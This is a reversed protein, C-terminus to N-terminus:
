AGGVRRVYDHVAPPMLRAQAMDHLPIWRFRLHDERSRPPHELLVPYLTVAYLHMQEHVRTAGKDFINELVTIPVVRSVERGTEERLERILADAPHEGAEVHGGPLHCFPDHVGQAVLLQNGITVIGRATIELREQM